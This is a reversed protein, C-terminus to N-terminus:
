SILEVNEWLKVPAGEEVVNVRFKVFHKLYRRRVSKLIDRATNDWLKFFNVKFYKVVKEFIKLIECM